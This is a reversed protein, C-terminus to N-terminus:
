TNNSREESSTDNKRWINNIIGNITVGEISIMPITKKKTIFYNGYYNEKDSDADFIASNRSNRYGANYQSKGTSNFPIIDKTQGLYNDVCVEGVLIKECKDKCFKCISTRFFYITNIYSGAYYSDIIKSLMQIYINIDTHMTKSIMHWCFDCTTCPVPCLSCINYEFSFQTSNIETYSIVKQKLMEKDNEAWLVIRSDYNDM